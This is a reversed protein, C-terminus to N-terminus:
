VFPLRAPYIQNLLAMAEEAFRLADQHVSPVRRPSELPIRHLRHLPNICVTFASDRVAGWSAHAYSSTWPYFEDYLAKSGSRASLERLNSTDWHGINIPVFEEWIDENALAELTELNVFAPLKDVDALKLLALKAQGAGYLRYAAWKGASDERILYSLVILTEMLTRLGVRGLIGAAPADILEIATALAYLVLGFAGDHRADVATTTRTDHFRQYVLARLALVRGRATDRNEEGVGREPLLVCPTAELAFDWFAKPWWRIGEDSHPLLLETARVMPRVKRPDGFNPYEYLERALEDTGQPFLIKGAQMQFAVAVWRCDTAEQSQHFHTTAISAALRAWADSAEVSLLSEWIHRCPLGPLVLLPSLVVAAEPVEAIARGMAYSFAHPKMSGFTSLGLSSPQEDTPLDAFSAIVTRFFHLARERTMAERALAAWLLEPLRDNLWSQHVMPLTALPPTLVKGQRSHQDLRSRGSRKGM